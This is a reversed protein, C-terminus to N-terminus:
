LFSRVFLNHDADFVMSWRMRKDETEFALVVKGPINHGVAVVNLERSPNKANDFLEGIRVQDNVNIMGVPVFEAVVTMKETNMVTVM